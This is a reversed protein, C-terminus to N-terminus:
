QNGPPNESAPMRDMSMNSLWYKQSEENFRAVMAETKLVEHIKAVSDKEIERMKKVGMDVFDPHIQNKEEDLRSLMSREIGVIRAVVEDDLKLEKVFVQHLRRIWQEELEPRKEADSYGITFLMNDTYSKKWDADQIPVYKRAAQKELKQRSLSEIATENPKANADKPVISFGFLHTVAFYLGVLGCTASAIWRVTNKRKQSIEKVQVRVDKDMSQSMEIYSEDFSKQVADKIRKQLPVSESNTKNATALWLGEIETSLRKIFKDRQGTIEALNNQIDRHLNEKEKAKLGDLEDMVEKRYKAAEHHVQDKAVQLDMNIKKLADLKDDQSKRIDQQIAALDKQKDIIVQANETMRKQMDDIKKETRDKEHKATQLQREIESNQFKKQQLQTEFERIQTQLNQVHFEMDKRKQSVEILKETEQAQQVAIKERAQASSEELSSIENTYRTKKNHYEDELVQDRVQREVAWKEKEIEFEQSLRKKQLDLEIKQNEVFQTKEEDLRAKMLTAEQQAERIIQEAKDKAVHKANELAESAAKDAKSKAEELLDHAQTKLRDSETQTQNRLLETETQVQTRLQEAEAQAQSRMQESDAQARDLTQKFTQEAHELTKRASEQAENLNRVATEQSEELIKKAEEKAADTLSNAEALKLKRFDEMEHAAQEFLATAESKKQDVIQLGLREANKESNEFHAKASLLYNEIAERDQSPFESPINGKELKKEFLELKIFIDSNGLKIPKGLKYPHVEETSLRKEDVFTGNGAGLDKLYIKGRNVLVGLHKRSIKPDALVLTSEPARGIVFKESDVLHVEEKDSPWYVKVLVAFAGM